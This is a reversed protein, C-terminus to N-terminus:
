NKNDFLSALKIISETKNKVYKLMNQDKQVAKMCLEETQDEMYILAYPNREIVEDYIKKRQTQYVFRLTSIDNKIAEMCIDETQDVVYSLSYPDNKIAEMCIKKYEEKSMKSHPVYKLSLGRQKVAIMCLDFTRNNIDIYEILYGDSKLAEKCINLTKNKVFRFVDPKKKIAELCLHETQQKINTIAYPNTNIATTYFDNIQKPTYKDYWIYKLANGYKRLAAMCVYYNQMDIEELAYHSSESKKIAKRMTKMYEVHLENMMNNKECLIELKEKCGYLMNSWCEYTVFENIIEKDDVYQLCECILKEYTDFAPYKHNEVYKNFDNKDYVLSVNKVHDSKKNLLIHHSLKYILLIYISNGILDCLESVNQNYIDDFLEIMENDIKIKKRKIVFMKTVFSKSVNMIKQEDHINEIKITIM